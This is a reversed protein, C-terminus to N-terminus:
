LPKVFKEMCIEASKCLLYNENETMENEFDTLVKCAYTLDTIIHKNQRIKSIQDWQTTLGSLSGTDGSSNSNRSTVMNYFFWSKNKVKM